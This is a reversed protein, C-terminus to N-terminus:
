RVLPAYGAALLLEDMEEIPLGLGLGLRIVADRSPHRSRRRGLRQNLVDVNENALRWVYAIDLWSRNALRTVSLGRAHMFRRLLGSFTEEEIAYVGSAFGTAKAGRKSSV